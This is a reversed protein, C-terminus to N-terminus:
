DTPTVTGLGYRILTNDLCWPSCITLTRIHYLLRAFLVVHVSDVAMKEFHLGSGWFRGVDRKSPDISLKASFRRSPVCDM